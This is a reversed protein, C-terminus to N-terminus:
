ISVLGSYGKLWDLRATTNSGCYVEWQNSAIIRGGTQVAYENTGSYIGCENFMSGLSAFAGDTQFYPNGTGQDVLSSVGVDATIAPTTMNYEVWAKIRYRQAGVPTKYVESRITSM